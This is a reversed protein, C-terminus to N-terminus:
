SPFRPNEKGDEGWGSLQTKQKKKKKKSNQGTDLVHDFKLPSPGISCLQLLMFETCLPPLPAVAAARVANM